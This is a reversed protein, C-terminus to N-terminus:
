RAPAAPRPCQFRPASRSQSLRGATSRRAPSPSRNARSRPAPSRRVPPSLRSTPSGSKDDPDRSRASPHSAASARRASEARRPFVTPARVIQCQCFNQNGVGAGGASWILEGGIRPVALLRQCSRLSGKAPASPRGRLGHNESGVSHANEHSLSNPAAPM